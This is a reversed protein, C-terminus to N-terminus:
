IKHNILYEIAKQLFGTDDKFMGLGSNCTQCLLGRNGGTRHNHDVFAGRKTQSFCIGCIGCKNGQMNILNTYEGVSLGYKVRLEREKWKHKNKRYYNTDMEKKKGKNEKVWKVRGERAKSPNKIRWNKSSKRCKERHTERYNRDRKRKEETSM